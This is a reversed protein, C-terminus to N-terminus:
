ATPTSSCRRGGARLTGGKATTYPPRDLAGLPLAAAVSWTVGGGRRAGVVLPPRHGALRTGRCTASAPDIVTLLVTAMTTGVGDLLPVPQAAGAADRPDREILVYSRGGRQAAPGDTSAAGIGRGRRRRRWGVRGSELAIADYWDGGGSDAGGPLYLAARQLGQVLPLDEPAFAAPPRPRELARAPVGRASSRWGPATPCSCCSARTRSASGVRGPSGVEVVGTVPGERAAAVGMLSTGEGDGLPHRRSRGAGGTVPRRRGGAGRSSARSRCGGRAGQERRARGSAWRTGREDRRPQAVPDRVTPASCESMRVLLESILEDFALSGLAAHHHAPRPLREDAARGAGSPGRASSRRASPRPASATACTTCRCSAAGPGRARRARVASFSCACPIREDVSTSSCSSRRTAPWRAPGCRRAGSRTRAASDEAVFVDLARSRLEAAPRGLLAGLARNAQLSAAARTWARWGSRRTRSSRRAVPGREREACADDRAARPVGGVKARLVEPDYPKFLYDVAGAAYGKHIHPPETSIATM